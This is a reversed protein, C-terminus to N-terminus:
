KKIWKIIIDRTRNEIVQTNIMQMLDPFFQDNNKWISKQGEEQKWLSLNYEHQVLQYLDSLCHEEEHLTEPQRRALM